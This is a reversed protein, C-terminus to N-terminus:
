CIFPRNFSYILLNGSVWGLLGDPVFMWRRRRWEFGGKKEWEAQRDVHGFVSLQQWTLRQRTIPQRANVLVSGHSQSVLTLMRGFAANPLTTARRELLTCGIRSLASLLNSIIIWLKVQFHPLSPPHIQTHTHPSTPSLPADLRTEEMLASSVDKGASFFLWCHFGSEGRSSETGARGREGGERQQALRM